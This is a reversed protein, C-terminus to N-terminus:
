LTMTQLFISFDFINVKGDGNIDSQLKIEEKDSGWRYLFISWDSINVAGDSNLDARSVSFQLLKFIRMISFNSAKGEADTQRARVQHEGYALYTADANFNWFGSQDAKIEKYKLGDIELEVMNNPAAYGMIKPTDNKAILSKDFGITPPVLIDKAEFLDGQLPVNFALAGTSRGDKDQVQLAFFYDGGLIGTYTVTFSGDELITKTEVPVQRYLEDQVSKRLM